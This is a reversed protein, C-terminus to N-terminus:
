SARVLKIWNISIEMEGSSLLPKGITKLALYDSPLLMMLVVTNNEKNISKVFLRQGSDEIEVLDFVKIYM